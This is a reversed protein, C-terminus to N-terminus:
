SCKWESLAVMSRSATSRRRPRSPKSMSISFSPLVASAAVPLAMSSSSRRPGFASLQLLTTRNPANTTTVPTQKAFASSSDVCPPAVTAIDMTRCHHTGSPFYTQLVSASHTICRHCNMAVRTQQARTSRASDFIQSHKAWAWKIKNTCSELHRTPESTSKKHWKPPAMYATPFSRLASVDNQYKRRQSVGSHKRIALRIGTTSAWCQDHDSKKCITAFLGYKPRLFLTPKYTPEIECMAFYLLSL